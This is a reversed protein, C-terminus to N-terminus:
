KGEMPNRPLAAVAEDLEVQAKGLDAVAAEHDADAREAEANAQDLDAQQNEREKPTMSRRERRVARLKEGAKALATSFRQERAQANKFSAHAALLGTTQDNGAGDGAGDGSGDPPPPTGSVGLSSALPGHFVAGSPADAWRDPLQKKGRVPNRALRLNPWTRPEPAHVVTAFEGDVVALPLDEAPVSFGGAGVDALRRLAALPNNLAAADAQAGGVAFVADLEQLFFLGTLSEDDATASGDLALVLDDTGFDEVRCGEASKQRPKTLFAPLQTLQFNFGRYEVEVVGDRGVIPRFVVNTIVPSPYRGIRQATRALEMLLRCLGAVAIRTRAAYMGAPLKACCSVPLFRIPSDHEDQEDEDIEALRDALTRKFTKVLEVATPTLASVIGDRGTDQALHRGEEGLFSRLWLLLGDLTLSTQTDLVLTRRESASILVSDLVAELEDVQDGAAEMLRSLVILETGLFGQGAGGSFQLRQTDWSSHLDTVMDVLTWFSTRRGEEEVTNVNADILGFRDRLVGLQGAVADPTVVGAPTRTGTLARFYNDVMQVRPGGAAGIEDVLRQVAGRVLSRYAEMDDSDGDNRLPTLGDLIRLIESRAITARRYLSAQGGTVAGLDAQVAYGRPVYRAEVHGEVPVLRFAASLADVFAKPDETRPRWGLVDRIATRVQPTLDGQVESRERAEARDVMAPFAQDVDVVPISDKGHTTTV